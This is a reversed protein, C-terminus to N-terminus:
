MGSQPPVMPVNKEDHGSSMGMKKSFVYLYLIELIGLTNVVLLALFWWKHDHKVAYWIAHYKWYVTWVVLLLMLPAFILGGGFGAGFPGWMGDYNGM